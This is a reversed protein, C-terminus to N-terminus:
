PDPVPPESGKAEATRGADQHANALNNRSILTHPHDPGLLRERDALNREHLPIAEAARGATRYTDGLNNRSTLTHPHGPGLIREQDTLLPEAIHIAQTANDGLEGLFWVAWARLGLM